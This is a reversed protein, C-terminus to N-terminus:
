ITEHKELFDCLGSSKKKWGGLDNAQSMWNADTLFRYRM